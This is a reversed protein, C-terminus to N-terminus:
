RGIPRFESLPLKPSLQGSCHRDMRIAGGFSMLPTEAVSDHPNVPDLDSSPSAEIVGYTKEERETSGSSLFTPSPRIARPRPQIRSEQASCAGLTMASSFTYSPVYGADSRDANEGSRVLVVMGWVLAAIAREKSSLSRGSSIPSCTSVEAPTRWSSTAEILDATWATCSM